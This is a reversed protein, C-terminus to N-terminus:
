RDQRPAPRGRDAPSVCTRKRLRHTTLTRETRPSAQAISRRGITEPMSNSTSGPLKTATTPGFPQPLDVISRVIAPTRGFCPPSTSSSPRGTLVVCRAVVLQHLLNDREPAQGM